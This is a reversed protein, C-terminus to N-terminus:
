ETPVKASMLIVDIHKGNIQIQNYKMEGTGIVVLMMFPLMQMMTLTKPDLDSKGWGNEIPPFSIDWIRDKFIGDSRLTIKPEDIRWCKERNTKRCYDKAM